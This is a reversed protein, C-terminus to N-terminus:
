LEEVRAKEGCDPCLPKRSTWDVENPEGEWGCADDTCEFHPGDYEEVDGRVDSPTLIVPPVDPVATALM